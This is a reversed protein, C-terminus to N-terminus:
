RGARWGERHKLATRVGASLEDAPLEDALRQWLVSRPKSLMGAGLDYKDLLQLAEDRWLLRALVEPQVHRNARSKRVRRLTIHEGSRRAEIIGWWTPIQERASSLHRKSTVLTVTDLVTGYADRQRALRHLRDADSKIEFGNLSGNIMALDVRAAGQCIGLEDVLIADPEATHERELAQRLAQRIDLDRLM